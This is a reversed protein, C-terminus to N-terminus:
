IPLQSFLMDTVVNELAALRDSDKPPLMVAEYHGVVGEDLIEYNDLTVTHTEANHEPINETYPLWGLSLLTAEPLLHYNSVTVGNIVGRSPLGVQVVEGNKILAYM